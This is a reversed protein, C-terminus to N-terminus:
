IIRVTKKKKKIADRRLLVFDRGYWKSIIRVFPITVRAYNMYM